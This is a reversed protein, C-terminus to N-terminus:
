DLEEVGNITNTELLDYIAYEIITGCLFANEKIYSEVGEKSNASYFHWDDFGVEKFMGIYRDM